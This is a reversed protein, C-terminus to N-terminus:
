EVALARMATEAPVPATESVASPSPESVTCLRAPESRSIPNHLMLSPVVVKGMGSSVSTSAPSPTRNLAATVPSAPLRLARSKYGLPSAAAVAATPFVGGSRPPRTPAAGLGAPATGFGGDGLEVAFVGAVSFEPRAAAAAPLSASGAHHGKTPSKARM